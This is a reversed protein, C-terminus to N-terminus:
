ATRRLVKSLASKARALLNQGNSARRRCCFLYRDSLRPRRVNKWIYTVDWGPLARELWEKTFTTVSGEDGDVFLEGSALGYEKSKSSVEILIVRRIKASLSEFLSATEDPGFDRFFHHHVSLLLAADFTPLKKVLDADFDVEGLCARKLPDGVGLTNVSKDIGVCFFGSEGLGRTIVGANCGIDLVSSVGGADRLTQRIVELKASTNRGKRLQWPTIEEQPAAM